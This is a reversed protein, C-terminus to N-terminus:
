YKKNANTRAQRWLRWPNVGQKAAGTPNCSRTPITDAKFILTKEHLFCAWLSAIRQKRHPLSEHNERIPKPPKTRLREPLKSKKQLLEPPTRHLNPYFLFPRFLTSSKLGTRLIELSEDANDHTLYYIEGFNALGKQNEELNEASGYIL